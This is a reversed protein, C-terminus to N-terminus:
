RTVSPPLTVLGKQRLGHLGVERLEKMQLLEQVCCDDSPAPVHWDLEGRAPQRHAAYKLKLM